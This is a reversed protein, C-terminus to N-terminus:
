LSIMSSVWTWRKDKVLIIVLYSRFTSGSSIPGLIGALRYSLSGINVRVPVTTNWYRVPVTGYCWNRRYTRGNKVHQVTETYFEHETNKLSQFCDPSFLSSSSVGRPGGTSTSWRDRREGRSSASSAAPSGECLSPQAVKNSSNGRRTASTRRLACTRASASNRPMRAKLASPLAELLPEVPRDKCRRSTWLWCAAPSGAGWTRWGPAATV